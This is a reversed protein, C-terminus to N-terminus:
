RFSSVEGEVWLFVWDLLISGRLIWSSDRSLFFNLDGSRVEEDLFMSLPLASLANLFYRDGFLDDNNGDEDTGDEERGGEEETVGFSEARRRGEVEKRGGVKPTM